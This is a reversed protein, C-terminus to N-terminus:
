EVNKVFQAGNKEALFNIWAPVLGSCKGTFSDSNVVVNQLKCERLNTNKV